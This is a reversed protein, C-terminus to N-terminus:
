APREYSPDFMQASMPAPDGATLNYRSFDEVGAERLFDEDYIANGNFSSPDRSLIELVTDSVIEPTRWDDETGLGFYRTARTDIATVPWFSNCGVGQGSLETALSLTIFSMGLKSWAYPAEGPARDVTVPPANALLWADEVDTLHDIFARCTLYTGRVNVDNLLDFRDAPLDAVNAIQIASANNVVIGVEGFHDIAEGAAAEVADADRVDLQIPLAEVGLDECERATQEISGELDEDDGYDDAESTKGTSVINCGQEALSLALAKGIGRTTGTIFATRGSLEPRELTM